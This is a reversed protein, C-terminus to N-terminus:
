RVRRWRSPSARRARAPAPRSRWGDPGRPRRPRRGRGGARRLLPHALLGRDRPQQPRRRQHARTAGVVRRGDRPSPPHRGAGPHRGPHEPVLGAGRVRGRAALDSRCLPGPEGPQAVQLVHLRPEAAEVQQRRGGPDPEREGGVSEALRQAAPTRVVHQQPRLLHPGGPVPHSRHARRPVALDGLQERSQAEQLRGLLGLPQRRSTRVGRVALLHAVQLLLHALPRPLGAARPLHESGDTELLELGSEPRRVSSDSM